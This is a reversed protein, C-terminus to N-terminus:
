KFNRNTKFSTRVITEAEEAHYKRGQERFPDEFM